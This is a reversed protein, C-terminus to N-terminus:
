SQKWWLLYEYTEVKRPAERKAAEKVEKATLGM